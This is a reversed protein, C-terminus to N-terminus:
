GGSIQQMAVLLQAFVAGGVCNVTVEDGVFVGEVGGEGDGVTLVIVAEGRGQGTVHL